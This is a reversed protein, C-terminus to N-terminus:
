HNISAEVKGAVVAGKARRIRTRGMANRVALHSYDYRM